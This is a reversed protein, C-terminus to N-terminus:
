DADPNQDQYEDYVKPFKNKLIRWGTAVQMTKGGRRKPDILYRMVSFVYFFPERGNRGGQGAIHRAALLQPRYKVNSFWTKNMGTMAGFADILKTTTALLHWQTAPEAPAPTHPANDAGTVGGLWCVLPSDPPVPPCDPWAALDTIFAGRQGAPMTTVLDGRAHAVAMQEALTAAKEADNPYFLTGLQNFRYPRPDCQTGNIQQEIKLSALARDAPPIQPAIIAFCRRLARAEEGTLKTM